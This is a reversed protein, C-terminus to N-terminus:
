HGHCKTAAQHAEADVNSVPLCRTNTAPKLTFSKLLENLRLWHHADLHQLGATDLSPATGRIDPANYENLVTRPVRTM